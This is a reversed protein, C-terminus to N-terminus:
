VAVAATDWVIVVLHIPLVAATDGVVVLDQVFDRRRLGTRRWWTCREAGAIGGSIVRSTAVGDGDGSASERVAIIALSQFALEFVAIGPARQTKIIKVCRCLITCLPRCIYLQGYQDRRM